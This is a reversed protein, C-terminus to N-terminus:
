STHGFRNKQIKEAWQILKLFIWSSGTYRAWRPVVLGRQVPSLSGLSVRYWGIGM